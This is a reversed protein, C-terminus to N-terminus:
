SILTRDQGDREINDVGCLQSDCCYLAWFAEEQGDTDSNDSLRECVRQFTEEQSVLTKLFNQRCESVCAPADSVDTALFGWLRDSCRDDEM